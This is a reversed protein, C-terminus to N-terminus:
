TCEGASSYKLILNRPIYPSWNGRFNGRHTAWDGRGQFSWVMWEEPSFGEHWYGDPKQGRVLEVCTNGVKVSDNKRLFESYERQTVKRM